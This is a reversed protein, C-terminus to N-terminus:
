ASSCGLRSSSARAATRRAPVALGRDLPRRVMARVLRDVRGSGVAVADLECGIAQAVPHGPLGRSRRRPRQRQVEVRQQIRHCPSRSAGRPPSSRAGCPDRAGARRRCRAPCRPEVAVHESELQLGVQAGRGEQRGAAIVVVQPDVDPVTAADTGRGACVAPSRCQVTRAPASRRRPVRAHRPRRPNRTSGASPPKRTRLGHCVATWKM